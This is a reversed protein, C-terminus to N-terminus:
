GYSKPVQSQLVAIENLFETDNGTRSVTSYGGSTAADKM